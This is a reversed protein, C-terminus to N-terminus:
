ASKAYSQHRRVARSALCLRAREVAAIDVQEVLLPRLVVEDAAVSLMAGEPVSGMLRGREGVLRAADEVDFVGAVTAAVFQGISHGLAYSARIGWQRTLEALAYGVIFLAPQTLETQELAGASVDFRGCIAERLAASTLSPLVNLCRDVATRVVPEDCYTAALMGSFQSGQGPFLLAFAPEAGAVQGRAVRSSGETGLSYEADVADKAVVALRFPYPIRGEQLTCAVDTLSAYPRQRLYGGLNTRHKELATSTKASLVIVQMTRSPPAPLVCPAEELVVHANSGGMGLSNVAARRPENGDAEWETLENPVWFPSSQFDIEPNPNRYHLVPPIMRNQLCLVAKLLGVIGAAADLHGIQTKVSGLACYQLRDTSYRFGKTLGAVEIPDGLPTGTGHAELFGIADATIGAAAVATACTRAQGDVSPATFSVKANGDNNVASGKIVAYIHNGDRLADSLPKLIVAGAGNGVVSGAADRDFARCHGDPSATANQFYGVGHPLRVSAGGALAVDCEGALISQCALHVATLSSSCATQVAYAPGRLNLKYAVRLALYEKDNGLMISHDGVVDIVHRNAMLNTLLYTNMTSGAFVGVLGPERHPDIGADEFATYATELFLRHQPDMIEAERAAYGFFSAAFEEVGDVPASAPVYRPNDVIVESVGREILEKRSFHRISEVGERINRWYLEINLAGPVRCAMGVIAIDAPIMQEPQSIQHEGKEFVSPNAGVAGRDGFM